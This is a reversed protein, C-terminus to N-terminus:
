EVTVNAVHVPSFAIDISRLGILVHTQTTLLLSCVVTIEIETMSPLTEEEQTLYVIMQLHLLLFLSHMIRSLITTNEVLYVPLFNCTIPVLITLTM